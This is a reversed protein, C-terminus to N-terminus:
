DGISRRQRGSPSGRITAAHAGALHGWLLVALLPRCRCASVPDSPHNVVVPLVASNARIAKEVQSRSHSHCPHSQSERHNDKYLVLPTKGGICGALNTRSQSSHSMLWKAGDRRTIATGCPHLLECFQKYKHLYRRMILRFLCSRKRWCKQLRKKQVALNSHRYLFTRHLLCESKRSVHISLLMQKRRQLRQSIWRSELRM